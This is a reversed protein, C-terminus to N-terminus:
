ERASIFNCKTKEGPIIEQERQTDGACLPKLAGKQFNGRHNGHANVTSQAETLLISPYVSYKKISVHVFSNINLLM